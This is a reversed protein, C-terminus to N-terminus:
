RAAEISQGSHVGQRQFHAFTLIKPNTHDSPAALRVVHPQQPSPIEGAPSAQTAPCSTARPGLITGSELPYM